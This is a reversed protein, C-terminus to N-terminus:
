GDKSAHTLCTAEDSAEGAYATAASLISGIRRLKDAITQATESADRGRTDRASPSDAVLLYADAVRRTVFALENTTGALHTLMKDAADANPVTTPQNEFTTASSLWRALKSMVRAANRTNLEDPEIEDFEPVNALCESHIEDHHM